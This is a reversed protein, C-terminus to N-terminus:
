RRKPRFYRPDDYYAPDANDITWGPVGLVPLAGFARRDGTRAVADVAAEGAADCAAILERWPAEIAQPDVDRLLTRATVGPYPDLAKEMVAHGLVVFRMSRHVDDRRTWFLDKWAHGALLATLTPDSSVAFAGGEDFLSLFDRLPGRPSAGGRATLEACHWANICSKTRPFALWALANFLDHWNDPRTAVTGDHLIRMEYSEALTRAPPHPAVFRISAGSRTHLGLERALTSLLGVDPFAAGDLRALFAHVSALIPSALLAATCWAM